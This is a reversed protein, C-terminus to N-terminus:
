PRAGSLGNGRFLASTLIIPQTSRPYQVEVDLKVLNQRLVTVTVRRRYVGSGSAVGREDVRTASESAVTWPDRTRIQELYARGIAIANTRNQALTQLTVTSASARTLSMLGVSLLLMAVLM